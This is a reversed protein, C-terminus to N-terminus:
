GKEQDKIEREKEFGRIEKKETKRKEMIGGEDSIM